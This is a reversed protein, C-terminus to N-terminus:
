LKDTIKSDVVKKTKNSDKVSNNSGNYSGIAIGNKAPSILLGVALGAMFCLLSLFLMDSSYNEKFKEIIKM